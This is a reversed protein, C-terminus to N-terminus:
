KTVEIKKLFKTLSELLERHLQKYTLAIEAVKALDGERRLADAIIEDETMNHYDSM